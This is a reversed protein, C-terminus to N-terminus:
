MIDGLIHHNSTSHFAHRLNWIDHGSFRGRITSHLHLIQNNLVTQRVDVVFEVHCTCKKYVLLVSQMINSHYSLRIILISHIFSTFENRHFCQLPWSQTCHWRIEGNKPFSHQFCLWSCCCRWPPAPRM